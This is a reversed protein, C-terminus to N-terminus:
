VESYGTVRCEGTERSCRYQGQEKQLTRNDTTGGGKEENRPEQLGEYSKIQIEKGERRNRVRPVLIPIKQDRLYVSGWQKGWSPQSVASCRDYGEVGQRRYREGALIRVEEELVEKVHWLGLPILAQILGTRADSDMAKVRLDCIERVRARRVKVGRGIRLIRKM